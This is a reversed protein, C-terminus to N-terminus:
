IFNFGRLEVVEVTKERVVDGEGLVFTAKIIKGNMVELIWYKDAPWMDSYPIEDVKFWDPRMEETEKPEGDWNECIYVHAKQNWLENHPFYFSIEAVKNSQKIQVEIEEETERMAGELIEEDKEVKGGLGNWRNVGFGRKKMALCVETIKEEIKKVLFVITVDRLKEKNEFRPEISEM